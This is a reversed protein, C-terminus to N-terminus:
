VAKSTECEEYQVNICLLVYLLLQIMDQINMEM